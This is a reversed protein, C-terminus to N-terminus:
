PNDSPRRNMTPNAVKMPTHAGAASSSAVIRNVGGRPQATPGRPGLAPSVPVSAEGRSGHDTALSLDDGDAPPKAPSTGALPNGPFSKQASVFGRTKGENADASKAEASKAEARKASRPSKRKPPKSPRPLEISSGLKLAEEIQATNRRMVENVKLKQKADAMTINVCTLPKCQINLIKNVTSIENVLDFKAPATTFPVRVGNFTDACVSEILRERDGIDPHSSALAKACEREASDAKLMLADITKVKEELMRCGRTATASIKRKAITYRADVLSHLEEALSDLYKEENRQQTRLAALHDELDLRCQRLTVRHPEFRALNAREATTPGILPKASALDQSVDPGEKADSGTSGGARPSVRVEGRKAKKKKTLRKRLLSVELLIKVHHLGDVGLQRLFDETLELLLQGNVGNSAFSRVYKNYATGLSRLWSCVGEVTWETVPGVPPSASFKAAYEAVRQTASLGPLDPLAAAAAFAGKQKRPPSAVASVRFEQAVPNKRAGPRPERLMTQWQQDEGGEGIKPERSPVITTSQNDKQVPARKKLSTFTQTSHLQSWINREDESSYPKRKIKPTFREREFGGGFARNPKRTKKKKRKAEDEDVLADRSVGLWRAAEALQRDAVSGRLGHRKWRFTQPTMTRFVDQAGVGGPTNKIEVTFSTMTGNIPPQGGETDPADGSETRNADQQQQEGGETAGQKSDVGQQEGKAEEEGAAGEGQEDAAAGGAEEQAVKADGKGEDDGSAGQNDGRRAVDRSAPPPGLLPSNSRSRAGGPSAPGSAPGAAAAAERALRSMRVINKVPGPGTLMTSTSEIDSDRMITASEGRTDIVVELIATEGGRGLLEIMDGVQVRTRTKAEMRKGNIRTGNRSGLDEVFGDIVAIHNRSIGGITKISLDNNSARGIRFPKGPALAHMKGRYILAVKDNRASPTPMASSSGAAVDAGGEASSMRRKAPRPTEVAADGDAQTQALDALSTAGDISKLIARTEESILSDDSIRSM